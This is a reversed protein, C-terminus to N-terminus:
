GTFRSLADDFRDFEEENKPMGFRLRGPQDDFARTLVGNLGLHYYLEHAKAHAILYFLPTGGLFMLEHRKILTDMNAASQNLDFLAQNQWSTDAFAQRCIALAPGSVPWPGLATKLECTLEDHALAFGLRLGALGFFKGFSRLVCLGKRGGENAISLDPAVEAFAEDVVLLGGTQAQGEALRLLDRRSRRKGDPNNPNTVVIVSFHGRDPLDPIVTVEHGAAQWARAHESYTPGIVGVTGPKRLWPLWQIISQTGPALALSEKKEAKFFKLAEDAAASELDNDPLKQWVSDLIDPVPYANPNIATSLDLWGQKPEGFLKEAHVISGGHSPLTLLPLEKQSPPPM